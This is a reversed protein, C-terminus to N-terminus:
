WWRGSARSRRRLRPGPGPVLETKRLYDILQQNHARVVADGREGDDDDAASNDSTAVLYEAVQGGNAYDEARRRVDDRLAEPLPQSDAAMLVLEPMRADITLADAFLPFECQICVLKALETARESFKSDLRGAKARAQALRYAARYRNLLVKVRRPSAVHTPILVSIVEDLPEIDKWIGTRNEVLELAFRTLTAPKVPPLALQHQFVKDLYASGASYYPNASDEPTHQSVKDRLAQELVQQDAAVVFVCGPVSLFTKLTELVSAVESPSCRDLEDIFVVLRKTKAATVLEKFRREFEEDGSPASRTLKVTFGATVVKIVAGVVAAGPILLALGGKLTGFYNDDAIYAIVGAAAAVVLLAGLAALAAVRAIALWQQLPFTVDNRDESQYLGKHFKDDNIGLGNAVQSIFHRRLPTEAYKSADFVTFRVKKPDSPLALKLLNAIGSKGSGWAGFLAISSPTTTHLVTDALQDVVDEHGFWDDERSTLSRDDVLEEEFLRGATSDQSWALASAGYTRGRVSSGSKTAARRAASVM